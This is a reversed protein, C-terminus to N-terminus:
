NADKVPKGEPDVVRGSYTIPKNDDAPTPANPQNAARAAPPDAPPAGGPAMGGREIELGDIGAQRWALLAPTNRLGKEAVGRALAAVASPPSGAIASLVAQVFQPPSAGARSLTALALLAAGLACGRLTLADGLRKRGRELRIKVTGPPVGMRAAAEERSLGE